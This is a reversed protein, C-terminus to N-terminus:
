TVRVRKGDKAAQLYHLHPVLVRNPDGAGDYFIDIIPIGFDEQIKRYISASVVGPCCFIPNLHLIAEALGRRILYLARGINIATEGSLYHRIGYEEALRVCESFEPERQEELLEGVLREFRGEISQLLRTHRPDGGHLRADMNFFHFAYETWSPVVIEGGLRHVLDQIRQNVLDNFRMYLDGVLGIRPKRGGSEDRPIEAFAEVVESLAQRRDASWRIAEAIKHEAATFVEETQGERLEYPLIRHFLKYLIGALINSELMGSAITQPLSDGPAMASILGIKLGKLGAAEFALDSLIPFGSFNCAMCVTPIFYFTRAPDLLLASFGAREFSAQWFISTLHDVRPILVTDGEALADNRARTKLPRKARRRKKLYNRFSALGAEIRTAYGVDSSHEDLQLILFPKGYRAM